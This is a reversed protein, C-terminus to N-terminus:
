VISGGVLQVPNAHVNKWISIIFLLFFSKCMDDLTYKTKWGLETEALKATAYSVAVDGPRRPAIEVPIKVGTTREFAAVMELVSIGHGTGSIPCM